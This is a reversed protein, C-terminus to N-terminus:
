KRFKVMRCRTENKIIVNFVVTLAFAMMISLSSLVFLYNALLRGIVFLILLLGFISALIIVSKILVYSLSEKPDIVDERRQISSKAEPIKNLIPYPKSEMVIFPVYDEQVCEQCM